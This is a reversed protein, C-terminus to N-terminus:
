ATATSSPPTTTRSRRPPTVSTSNITPASAPTTSEAKEDWIRCLKEYDDRLMFVDVDDDWPIFGKHRVAGLCTGGALVFGLGNEQCFEQFYLLIELLKSQIEQITVEKKEEM